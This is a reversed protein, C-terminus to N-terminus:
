HPPVQAGVPCNERQIPAGPNSVKFSYGCSVYSNGAGVRLYVYLTRDDPNYVTLSADPGTGNLQFALNSDGGRASSSSSSRQAMVPTGAGRWWWGVAVALCFLALGRIVSRLRMM